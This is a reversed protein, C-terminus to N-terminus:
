RSRLHGDGSCIVVLVGENNAYVYTRLVADHSPICPSGCGRKTLDVATAVLSVSLM